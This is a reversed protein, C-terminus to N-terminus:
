GGPLCARQKLMSCSTGKNCQTRVVANSLGCSLIANAQRVAYARAMVEHARAMGEEGDTEGLINLM